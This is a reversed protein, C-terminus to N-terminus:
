LPPYCLGCSWSQSTLDFNCTEQNCDSDDTCRDNPTHCFYGTALGDCFAYGNNQRFCGRM